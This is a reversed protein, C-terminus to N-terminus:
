TARHDSLTGIDTRFRFHIAGFPSAKEVEVKEDPTLIPAAM